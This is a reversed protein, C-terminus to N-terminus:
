LKRAKMARTKRWKYNKLTNRQNYAIRKCEDSCYHQNNNVGLLLIGSQCVKCPRTKRSEMVVVASMQALARKKDAYRASAQRATARKQESKCETSECYRANKHVNILPTQCHECRKGDM